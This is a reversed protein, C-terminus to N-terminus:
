INISRLSKAVSGQASVFAAFSLVCASSKGGTDAIQVGSVGTRGSPQRRGWLLLFIFGANWHRSAECTIRPSFHDDSPTKRFYFYGCFCLACVGTRVSSSYFDIWIKIARWFNLKNSIWCRLMTAHADRYGLFSRKIIIIKKQRGVNWPLSIRRTGRRERSASFPSKTKMKAPSLVRILFSNDEVAPRASVDNRHTRCVAGFCRFGFAIFTM